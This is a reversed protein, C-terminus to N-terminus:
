AKGGCIEGYFPCYGKCVNPHVEPDPIEGSAAYEIVSRQWDFAQAVVREDYPESHVKIDNENGDRSIAVLTVEDVEYGAEKLLYGYIMVQWRQGLKPFYRLNRKSSTKWDYVRRESKRYCDVHAPGILGPIGPAELELLFNDDLYGTLAEEIVAHIATGMIAPLRLTKNTQPYDLLQFVSRAKCFGVSSPGLEKQQTRPRADDQATLANTLVTVIDTEKM